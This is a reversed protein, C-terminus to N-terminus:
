AFPHPIVTINKSTLFQRVLSTHTPANDHHLFWNNNNWKDPHKRWIGERLRKLVECYFKCNITQGPPIFEKHVIGQIDFFVITSRGNSHVQRAKKPQLLNPTKWQLSQQKTEPDYGYVWTEYSTIISSIFNPDDRAQQELERCVSVRHTKQNDSLLRLVFRVSIHRM